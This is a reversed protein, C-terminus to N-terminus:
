FFKFFICNICIFIIRKDLKCCAAALIYSQIIGLFVFLKFFYQFDQMMAIDQLLTPMDYYMIRIHDNSIDDFYEGFTLDLVISKYDMDYDDEYSYKRLSKLQKELRKLELLARREEKM